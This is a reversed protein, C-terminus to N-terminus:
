GAHSPLTVTFTAGRGAGESEVTITGGHLEVLHKTLALGLGLGTVRRPSADAQSLREFVFPLFTREIGQGTDNVVIHLRAGDRKMTLSVLGGEPTFKVANALLNWVVQQLRMPDGFVEAPRSGDDVVLTIGKAAAAPRVTDVAADLVSVLDIQAPEIRLRGTIIRASDLLDEIILLQARANREIVATVREIAPQDTPGHRILDVYSLIASLPSRLEHSVMALFADKSASAAEAAARASQERALKERESEAQKRETVDVCSGIYCLFVGSPSFRPVGQDFIWRYEGDHRRLRYDM